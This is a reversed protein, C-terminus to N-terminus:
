IEKTTSTRYVPTHTYGEQYFERRAKVNRVRGRALPDAGHRGLRIDALARVHDGLGPQDPLTLKRRLMELAETNREADNYQTSTSTHKGM